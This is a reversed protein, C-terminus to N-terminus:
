GSLPNKELDSITTPRSKLFTHASAEHQGGTKVSNSENQLPVGNLFHKM